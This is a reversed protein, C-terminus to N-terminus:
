KTYNPIADDSSNREAETPATTAPGGEKSASDLIFRLADALVAREGEPTVDARKVYTVTAEGVGGSAPRHEREM